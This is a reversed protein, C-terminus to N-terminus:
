LNNNKKIEITAFIGLQPVLNSIANDIVTVMKVLFDPILQSYSFGGSLLYSLFSHKKISIISLSPFAKLFSKKDRCFVIWPLAGNASYLPDNGEVKWEVAKPQFEEHHLYKWVIRGWLTNYPEIMRIEGGIILCRELERLFKNSDQIHHFVNIMIFRKVVGTKIPLIMGNSTFDLNIIPLIDTTYVSHNLEKVFSPGSGLEIIVNEKLEDSSNNFLIDLYWQKYITRLLKHDRLVSIREESVKINQKIISNRTNQM